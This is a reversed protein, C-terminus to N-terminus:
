PQSQCLHKGAFKLIKLFVKKQLVGGATTETLEKLMHLCDFLMIVLM